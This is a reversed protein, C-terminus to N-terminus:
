SAPKFGVYASGCPNPYLLRLAEELDSGLDARNGKGRHHHFLDGRTLVLLAVKPVGLAAEAVTRLEADDPFSFHKFICFRQKENEVADGKIGKTWVAPAKAPGM